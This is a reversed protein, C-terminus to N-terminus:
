FIKLVNISPLTCCVKLARGCKKGGSLRCITCLMSRLCGKGELMVRKFWEYEEQEMKECAYRIKSESDMDNRGMVVGAAEEYNLVGDENYYIGRDKWLKWWSDPFQGFCLSLDFLCDRDGFM